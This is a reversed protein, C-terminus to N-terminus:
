KQPTNSKLLSRPNWGIIGEEIRGFDCRLVSDYKRALIRFQEMKMTFFRIKHYLDGLHVDVLDKTFVDQGSRAQVWSM